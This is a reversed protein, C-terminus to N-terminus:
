HGSGHDLATNRLRPTGVCKHIVLIRLLFFIDRVSSLKQIFGYITSASVVSLTMMQNIHYFKGLDGIYRIVIILM